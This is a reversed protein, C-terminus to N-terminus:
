ILNYKVYICTYTYIYIYMYLLNFMHRMYIYVYKYIYIYIYIYTRGGRLDVKEFGRDVIVWVRNHDMKCPDIHTARWARWWGRHVLSLLYIGLIVLADRCGVARRGGQHLAARCLYYLLHMDRCGVARRGGQHLTADRCGVARHGGQHLAVRCLYYLLHM